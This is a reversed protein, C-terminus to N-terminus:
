PKPGAELRAAISLLDGWAERKALPTRLLYAPHTMPLTPLGFAESWQGRLKLIGQRNLAAICPTNGMLVLMEPQALEVHRRLFPLMAAIEAPEPRRNGPPRWPLVNTIYLGREADVTDRALGIAAFMRDLLQGARGVFPRGQLDEEEGPAEGIVMVRAGAKGDAFCFNRAGKRIEIADFAEQAEALAALTSAGAALAEARAAHDEAEDRRPAPAAAPAAAPTEARDPLDYRDIAADMCPEDAGLEAQWQLLALATEADLAFGRYTPDATM